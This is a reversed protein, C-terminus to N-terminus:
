PLKSRGTRLALLSVVIVGTAGMLAAVWASRDTAFLVVAACLGVLGLIALVVGLVLLLKLQKALGPDLQEGM